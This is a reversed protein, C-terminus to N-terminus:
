RMVRASGSGWKYTGPGLLRGLQGFDEVVVFQHAQEGDGGVGLVSGQEHRGIGGPQSGAFETTEPNGVDIGSAHSQTDFLALAALIAVHRERGPKQRLQAGIPAALPGCVPQERALGGVPGHARWPGACM